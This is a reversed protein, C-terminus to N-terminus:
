PDRRTAALVSPTFLLVIVVVAPVILFWGVDERAFLGQLSGIGLGIQLVQWVMAAARVWPRGRLTNVAVMVLWAAALATLAFIAVAAAYSQPTEALLEVLLFVAAAALAAAEAVLLVVLIRVLVPARMRGEDPAPAPDNKESM